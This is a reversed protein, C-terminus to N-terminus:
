GWPPKKKTFKELGEGPENPLDSLSSAPDVLKNQETQDFMLDVVGDSSVVGITAFTAFDTDIPGTLVRWTPTQEVPFVDGASVEIFPKKGKENDM